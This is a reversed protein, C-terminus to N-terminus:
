KDNIQVFHYESHFFAWIKLEWVMSTTGFGHQQKVWDLIDNSIRIVASSRIKNDDFDHSETTIDM